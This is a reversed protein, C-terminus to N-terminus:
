RETKRKIKRETEARPKGKERKEGKRTKKKIKRPRMEKEGLGGGGTVNERRADNKNEEFNEEKKLRRGIKSETNSKRERGVREEQVDERWSDKAKEREEGRREQESWEM